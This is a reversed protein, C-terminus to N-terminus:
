LGQIRDSHPWEELKIRLNTNPAAELWLFYWLYNKKQKWYYITRFNSEKTRYWYPLDLLKRFDSYNSFLPRHALLDPLDAFIFSLTWLQQIINLLWAFLNSLIKDRLATNFKTIALKWWLTHKYSKTSAQGSGDVDKQMSCRLINHRLRSDYGPGGASCALVRQFSGNSYGYKTAMRSRVQAAVAGGWTLIPSRPQIHDTTHLTRMSIRGFAHRQTLIACWTLTVVIYLSSWFWRCGKAYLM